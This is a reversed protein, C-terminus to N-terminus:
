KLAGKLSTATPAERVTFEATSFLGWERLGNQLREYHQNGGPYVVFKIVPIWYFNRPPKGWSLTVNEIGRLVDQVIEEKSEGQGCRLSADNPGILIRNALVHIEIRKELGITARGHSYGWRKQMRDASGQSAGGRSTGISPAGGQPSSEAGGASASGGSSAQGRGGSAGTAGRSDASKPGGNVTPSREDETPGFRSTFTNDPSEEELMAPSGTNPQGGDPNGATGKSPSRNGTVAQDPTDPQATGTPRRGSESRLSDTVSGNLGEFPGGPERGPAVKGRWENDSNAPLPELAEPLPGPSVMQGPARAGPIPSRLTGLKAPRAAVDGTGAGDTPQDSTGRSKGDGVAVRDEGPLGNGSPTSETPIPRAPSRTGTGRTSPDRGSTPDGIMFPSQGGQAQEDGAPDGPMPFGGPPFGGPPFGGSALGGGPGGGPGRGNGRGSALAEMLNDRTNVVETVATRVIKAAEPDSPPTDLVWEEEILEYGFPVDLRALLKRAIYYAVSGSPRVLLLVYPEPEDSNSRLRKENWYKMLAVSGALLPNYGETFGELDKATIIEGEPIFKLGVDTCEIYIPHRVTGSVGDYPVLAYPSPASAQKRKSIDIRQKIAALQAALERDTAALDQERQELETRKAQLSALTSKASKDTRIAADIRTNLRALDDRNKAVDQALRDREAEAAAVRGAWTKRLREREAAIEAEREARRRAAALRREELEAARAALEDPSPGTSLRAPADPLYVPESDSAPAIAPAAEVVELAAARERALARQQIKKTMAILLLILAGMTCVLVALFPFLSIASGTAPRRGM